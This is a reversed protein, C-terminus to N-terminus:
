KAIMYVIDRTRSIIFGHDVTTMWATEMTATYDDFGRGFLWDKIQSKTWQHRGEGTLLSSFDNWKSSTLELRLHTGDEVTVGSASTFEAYSGSETWVTYVQETPPNNQCSCFLM